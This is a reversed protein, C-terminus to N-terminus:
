DLLEYISKVYYEDIDLGDILGNFDIMEMIIHLDIKNQFLLTSHIAQMLYEKSKTLQNMQYYASALLFYPYYIQSYM